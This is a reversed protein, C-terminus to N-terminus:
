DFLCIVTDAPLGIRIINELHVSAGDQMSHMDDWAVLGQLFM